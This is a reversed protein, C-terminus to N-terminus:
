PFLFYMAGHMWGKTQGEGMRLQLITSDLKAFSGSGPQVLGGGILAPLCAQLNSVLKVEIMAKDGENGCEANTTDVKLNSRLSWHAYPAPALSSFAGCAWVLGLDTYSGMFTGSGLIGILVLLITSM